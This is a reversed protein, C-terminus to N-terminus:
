QSDKTDKSLNKPKTFFGKIKLWYAKLAFFFAAIGGILLQLFLSGSGPDLYAYAKQEGTLFLIGIALVIKIM